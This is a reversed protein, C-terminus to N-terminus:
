REVFYGWHELDIGYRDAVYANKEAYASRLIQMSEDSIEVTQSNFNRIADVVRDGFYKRPSDLFPFFRYKIRGLVNYITSPTHYSGNKKSINRKSGTEMIETAEDLGIGLSSCLASLFAPLDASMQEYVLVHVRDQGFSETYADLVERFDLWEIFAESVAGGNHTGKYILDNISEITSHKFNEHYMFSYWSLLLDQQKRLVVIVETDFDEPPFVAHLRRAVRTPGIDCATRANLPETYAEDSYVIREKPQKAVVAKADERVTPFDIEENNCIEQRVLFINRERQLSSIESHGSFLNHQLSSTGTKPYGVHLFLKSM